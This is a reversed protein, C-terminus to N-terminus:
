EQMFADNVPVIEIAREMEGNLIYACNGEYVVDQWAGIGGLIDDWENEQIIEDGDVLCMDVLYFDYSVKEYSSNLFEEESVVHPKEQRKIPVGNKSVYEMILEEADKLVESDESSAPKAKDLQPDVDAGGGDSADDMKLKMNRLENKTRILIDLEENLREITENMISRHVLAAGISVGYALWAADKIMGLWFM